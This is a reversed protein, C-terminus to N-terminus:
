RTSCQVAGHSLHEFKKAVFNTVRQRGIDKMVTVVLDRRLLNRCITRAELKGQGLKQGLQQQSLGEAGAEKVKAFAQWMMTRDLLWGSQDLVGPPTAGSELSELETKNLTEDEEDGFVSDPEADLDLLKVVRVSKEQNTGKRKWESEEADPYLSRYPVRVDGKM